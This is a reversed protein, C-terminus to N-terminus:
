RSTGSERGAAIRGNQGAIQAVLRQSVQAGGAEVEHPQRDIRVNGIRLARDSIAAIRRMWRCPSVTM